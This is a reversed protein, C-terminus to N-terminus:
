KETAFNYFGQECCFFKYNQEVKICFAIFFVKNATIMLTM